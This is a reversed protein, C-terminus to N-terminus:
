RGGDPSWRPMVDPYDGQTFQRAEGISTPAVWLNSYKAETERDVRQLTYVVHEGDPSIRVGSLVQLRYLDDLTISKKQTPM